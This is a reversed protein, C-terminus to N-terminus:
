TISWEPVLRANTTASPLTDRDNAARAGPVNSILVSARRKREMRFPSMLEKDQM